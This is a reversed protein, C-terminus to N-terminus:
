IHILSLHLPAQRHEIEQRGLKLTTYPLGAYRLNAQNVETGEPDVVVAHDAVGNEGGNNYADDGIVRVDELQVYAGFDYFLGTSYGLATRLTSAHADQLPISTLMPRAGPMIRPQGDEVFEFRYRLYLDVKGGKLAELLDDGAYIPGAVGVGLLGVFAVTYHTPRVARIM